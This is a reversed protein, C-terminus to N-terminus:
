LKLISVAINHFTAVSSVAASNPYYEALSGQGPPHALM